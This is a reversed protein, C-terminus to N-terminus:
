DLKLSGDALYIDKQNCVPFAQCYKCAVVEGPVEVVIGKGGEKQLRAHADAANTFNKTSRKGQHFSNPDKYYKWAGEKRWLEKDTCHPILSEDNADHTRIATLKQQIYDETDDLSLLPILQQEVQKQPYKPNQKAEYAKWDTFVFQIAMHDQTIRPIPLAQDLWRYISGQLQYDETKVDHVWTYTGTSKVDELRGEALFDYKGSITEGMFERFVRQELYVPIIDPTLESDEPNIRIAEITKEPYGMKLMARKYHGEVWVREIGDHISTGMRSKVLGLLDTKAYEQPVRKSLIIQRLPKMLGTASITNPQHDYSDHALYAAMSLPIKTENTYDTRM